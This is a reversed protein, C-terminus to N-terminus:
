KPYAAPNSRIASQASATSTGHPGSHDGSFRLVQGSVARRTSTDGDARDCLPGRLQLSRTICGVAAVPALAMLGIAVVEARRRRHHLDPVLSRVARSHPARGSRPPASIEHASRRPPAPQLRSPPWASCGTLSLTDVIPSGPLMSQWRRPQAGHFAQPQSDAAAVVADDRVRRHRPGQRRPHRRSASRSSRRVPCSGAGTPSGPGPSSAGPRAATAGHALPPPGADSRRGRSAGSPWAQRSGSHRQRPRGGRRRGGPDPMRQRRRHEQAPPGSVAPTTAARASSASM